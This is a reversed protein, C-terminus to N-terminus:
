GGRKSEQYAGHSINGPFIAEEPMGIGRAQKEPIGPSQFKGFFNSGRAYRNRESAKGTHGTISIKRSFQKRPCVKKGRKSEQYARRSYNGPFITGEPMGIGRAQKEPIGPLWFDRTFVAEEPM